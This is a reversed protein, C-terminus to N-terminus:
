REVGRGGREQEKMQQWSIYVYMSLHIYFRWRCTSMKLSKSVISSLHLTEWIMYIPILRHYIRFRGFRSVWKERYLSLNLCIRLKFKYQSVCLFRFQEMQHIAPTYRKWHFSDYPSVSTAIALSFSVYICWSISKHIDSYTGIIFSCSISQHIGSYTGIYFYLFISVYMMLLISMYVYVFLSLYSSLYIRWKHFLGICIHRSLVVPLLIYVDIIFYVQLIDSIFLCSCLHICPGHFLRM